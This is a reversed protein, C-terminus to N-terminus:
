YPWEKKPRKNKDVLTGIFIGVVLSFFCLLLCNEYNSLFFDIM